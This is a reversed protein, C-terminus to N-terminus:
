VKKEKRNEILKRAVDVLNITENGRDYDDIKAAKQKVELNIVMDNNVYLDQWNKFISNNLIQTPNYGRNKFATLKIIALEMAYPTMPKKIKKRMKIFEAWARRDLWDPIIVEPDSRSM